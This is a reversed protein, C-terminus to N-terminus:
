GLDCLSDQRVPELGVIDERSSILFSNSQRPCSLMENFYPFSPSTVEKIRDGKFMPLIIDTKVNILAEILTKHYSVSFKPCPVTEIRSPSIVLLECIDIKIGELEQVLREVQEISEIEAVCTIKM